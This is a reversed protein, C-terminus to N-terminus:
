TRFNLLKNEFQQFSKSFRLEQSYEMLDDDTINELSINSDVLYQKFSFDLMNIDELLLEISFMKGCKLYKEISKDIDDMNYNYIESLLQNNIVEPVLFEYLYESPKVFEEESSAELNYYNDYFERSYDIPNNVINEIVKLYYNSNLLQKDYIM